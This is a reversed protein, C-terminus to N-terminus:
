QEGGDGGMGSVTEVLIVKVNACMQTYIKVMNMERCGKGVM